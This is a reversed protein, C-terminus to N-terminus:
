DDRGSSVPVGNRFEVRYIGDSDGPHTSELVFSTESEWDLGFPEFAAAGGELWSMDEHEALYVKAREMLSPLQDLVSTVQKGQLESPPKGASELTVQLGRIEGFWLKDDTTSFEGLGPVPVTVKRAEARRHEILAAIIGYVLKGVMVVPILVLVAVVIFLVIVPWTNV